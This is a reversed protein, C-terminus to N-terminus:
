SFCALFINEASVCGLRARGFLTTSCLAYLPNVGSLGQSQRRFLGATKEILLYTTAPQLRNQKILILICRGQQRLSTKEQFCMSDGIVSQLLILRKLASWSLLVISCTLSKKFPKVKTPFFIVRSKCKNLKLSESRM